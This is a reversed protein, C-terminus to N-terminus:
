VFVCYKGDIIIPSLVTSKTYIILDDNSLHCLELQIRFSSMSPSTFITQLTDQIM